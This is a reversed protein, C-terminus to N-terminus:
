AGGSIVVPESADGSAVSNNNSDGSYSVVWYFTGTEGFLEVTGSSATGASLTKTISYFSTGTGSPNNYLNFTVTGTPNDGGYVFVQDSLFEDETTTTPNAITIIGPTAMVTTLSENVGTDVSANNNSDGSYAAHWTYTGVQTATVNPSSYTNDGAVTVATYTTVSNDPATLSFTITGTGMYSGSLTASDSLVSTGVVGGATESATTTVTPSAKVTTLTEDVGNDNAGSNNSDGNYEAKWKYTGVQTATFASPSYTGNGSVAVPTIEITGNPETLIFLIFGTENYGGSLTASDSLMSTGVVNGATGSAMTTVTPSAKVTTLTEDVGNDDADNNNSDGSYSAHWTYTGVQM